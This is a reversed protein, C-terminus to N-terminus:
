DKIYAVAVPRRPSDYLHLVFAYDHRFELFNFRFLGSGTLNGLLLQRAEGDDRFFLMGVSGARIHWRLCASGLKHKLPAVQVTATLRDGRKPTTPITISVELQHTIRASGPPPSAASCGAM